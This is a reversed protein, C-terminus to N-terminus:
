ASEIRLPRSLLQDVASKVDIRGSVIAAVAETVPMPVGRAKAARDSILAAGAGEVLPLDPGLLTDLREGRGLAQGFRYNRSQESTATLVLDGLGSLGAATEPLGGSAIVFRTLEALGRAILAARASEGLGAGIVIGAAIALVNKLAGSLQVGIMDHSAYLRFARRSLHAAMAEAEAMSGSALTMATPLGRAIDAAFGPGSLVHLPHKPAIAALNTTIPEGSERDLGKACMVLASGPALHPLVLTATGAQASSPVVMLIIDRDGLRSADATPKVQDPMEVGALRVNKRSAAMAAMHEGNRGLLVIDNGPVALVTALATGFAGAGVVAIKPANGTQASRGSM